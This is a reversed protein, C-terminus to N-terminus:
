LGKTQDNKKEKVPLINMMPVIGFETFKITPVITMGTEEEVKKMGAIFRDTKDKMYSAKQEETLQITM